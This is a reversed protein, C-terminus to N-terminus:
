LCKGMDISVQIRKQKGKDLVPLDDPRDKIYKKWDVLTDYDRTEENSRGNHDYLLDSHCEFAYYTERMENFGEFLSVM